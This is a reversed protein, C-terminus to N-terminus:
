PRTDFSFSLVAGDYADVDVDYEVGGWYFEIEYEAPYGDAELECKLGTVDESAAGAEGLALEIAEDYGVSVQSNARPAVTLIERDCSVIGGTQADVEYDYRYGGSTFEIDYVSGWDERELRTFLGEADAVGAHNQAALEADAQSVAAGAAGERGPGTQEGQQRSAPGSQGQQSDAADRGGNQQAPESQEQQATGQSAGAEPAGPTGQRVACGSLALALLCVVACFAKRYRSM